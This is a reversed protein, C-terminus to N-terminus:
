AFHVPDRHPKERGCIPIWCFHDGLSGQSLIEIIAQAPEFYRQREQPLSALVDRKESGVKELLPASDTEGGVRQRREAVERPWSVDTLKSVNNTMGARNRATAPNRHM